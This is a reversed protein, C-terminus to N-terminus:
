VAAILLEAGEAAMQVMCILPPERRVPAFEVPEFKRWRTPKPMKLIPIFFIATLARQM